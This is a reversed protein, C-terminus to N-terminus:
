RVLYEWGAQWARTRRWDQEIAEHWTKGSLLVELALQPAQHAVVAVHEGDHGMRLDALFGEIRGQVDLYSEGNPFPTEIHDALRDKFSRASMGALGGYNCERLRSDEIISSQEGFVLRASDIARQLDSTFVVDFRRGTLSRGLELAQERGRASLEGPRWGTALGLENDITTAHVFYTLNVAM